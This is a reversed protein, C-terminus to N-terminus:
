YTDKRRVEKPKSQKRTSSWLVKSLPRFIAFWRITGERREIHGGKGLDRISLGRHNRNVVKVLDCLDIVIDISTECLIYIGMVKFREGHGM